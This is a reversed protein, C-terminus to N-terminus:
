LFHKFLFFEVGTISEVDIKMKFFVIRDKRKKDQFFFIMYVFCNIYNNLIFYKM